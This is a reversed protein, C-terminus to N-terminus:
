NKIYSLDFTVMFRHRDAPLTGTTPVNNVSVNSIGLDSGSNFNPYEHYYMYQSEELLQKIDNSLENKKKRNLSDSKQNGYFGWLTYSFRLDKISDGYMENEMSYNDGEEIALCPLPLKELSDPYGNEITLNTFFDKLTGSNYMSSGSRYYEQYNLFYMLSQTINTQLELTHHVITM